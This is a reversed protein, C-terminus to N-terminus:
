NEFRIKPLEDTDMFTVIVAKSGNIELVLKRYGNDKRYYLSYRSNAQLYIKRPQQKLILDMLEEEKFVKRQGSSLHDLAHHSLKIAKNKIKENFEDNDLEKIPRTSYIDM